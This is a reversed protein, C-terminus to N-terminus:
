TWSNYHVKLQSCYYAIILFRSIFYIYNRDVMLFVRSRNILSLCVALSRRGKLRRRLLLTRGNPTRLRQVFGHKNKRKIIPPQYESEYQGKIGRKHMIQWLGGYGGVPNTRSIHHNMTNLGMTFQRSSHIRLNSFIWLNNSM